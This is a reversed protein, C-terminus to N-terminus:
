YEEGIPRVFIKDDEILVVEIETDPDVIGELAKVEVLDSDFRVTGIPALRSITIGRDGIKLGRNQAVAKSDINTELSLRKWTKARLVYITLIVVLLVNVSTVVTGAFTGMQVFAYVSSGALSLLGLVGAFGVGPILLLEACLLLLGAIILTIVLGM